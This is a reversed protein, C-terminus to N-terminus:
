RHSRCPRRIPGVIRPPGPEVASLLATLHDTAAGLKLHSGLLKRAAQGPLYMLMPLSFSLGSHGLVDQFVVVTVGLTSVFGLAVAVM